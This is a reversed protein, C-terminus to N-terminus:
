IWSTKYLVVTPVKFWACELTVTGSSAIAVDTKALMEHLRGIRIDWDSVEPVQLKAQAVLSDNPLVILPTADIEKAADVM